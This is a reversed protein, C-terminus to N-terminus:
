RLFLPWKVRDLPPPPSFPTCTVPFLPLPSSAIGPPFSESVPLILVEFLWISLDRLIDLQGLIYLIVYFVLSVGLWHGVAGFHVFNCLFSSFCRAFHGVAGFHVFNCLFVLSVGLLIDLQGLIYLIVYFLSVFWAFHGVAEFHIFHCLFLFFGLLIPYHTWLVGIKPKKCTLLQM